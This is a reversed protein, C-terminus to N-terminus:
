PSFGYIKMIFPPSGSDIIQLCQLICVGSEYDIGPGAELSWAFDTPLAFLHTLDGRCPACYQNLEVNALECRLLQSRHRAGKLAIRAFWKQMEIIRIKRQHCRSHTTQNTYILEFFGEGLKSMTEELYITNNM